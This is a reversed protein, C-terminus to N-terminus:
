ELSDIHSSQLLKQVRVRIVIHALAAFLFTSMRLTLVRAGRDDSSMPDVHEGDTLVNLKLLPPKRM